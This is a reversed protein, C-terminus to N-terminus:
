LTELMRENDAIHKELIGIIANYMERAIDGKFDCQNTYSVGFDGYYQNIKVHFLSEPNPHRQLESKADELEKLEREVRKAKKLLERDM